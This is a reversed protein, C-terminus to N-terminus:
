VIILHEGHLALAECVKQDCAHLANSLLSGLEQKKMTRRAEPVQSMQQM